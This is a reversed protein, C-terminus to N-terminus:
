VDDEASHDKVAALFLDVAKMFDEYDAYTQDFGPTTSKKTTPCYTFIKQKSNAVKDKSPTYRKRLGGCRSIGCAACPKHSKFPMTPKAPVRAPPLTFSFGASSGSAVSPFSLTPAQPQSPVVLLIPTNATSQSATPSGKPMIKRCTATPETVDLRRKEAWRKGTVHPIVAYQVEPRNPVPLSDPLHPAAPMPEESLVKQHCTVQPVMTARYNAKKEERTLFASVSKSNINPLPIHASLVPDDRVRDVIRKYQARVILSIKTTTHTQSAPPRNKLMKILYLLRSDETIQAAQAHTLRAFKTKQAAINEATAPGLCRGFLTYGWKSEYKKQFNVASKDHEHLQSAAAKIRQRIDAPIIHRDSDDVLLLLVMALSEVEEFGPLHLKSSGM